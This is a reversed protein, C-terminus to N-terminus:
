VFYSTIYKVTICYIFYYIQCYYLIYHLIRCYFVTIYLIHHLIDLLIVFYQIQGSIQMQRQQHAITHYKYIKDWIEKMSQTRREKVMIWSYTTKSRMM